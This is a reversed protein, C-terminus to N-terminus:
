WFWATSSMRLSNSWMKPVLPGEQDKQVPPHLPPKFLEKLDSSLVLLAANTRKAQQSM